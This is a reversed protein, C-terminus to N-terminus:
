TGLVVPTPQNNTNGNGVQGDKNRGWCWLRGDSAVACTHGDGASVTKWSPAASTVQVPTVAAQATGLQGDASGGWCWLSGDTQLGCTHTHGASIATWKAAPITIPSPTRVAATSGIGLQGNSNDGWCWLSSDTKLACTHYYGGSVQAWDTGPIQTPSLRMHTTGDGLQGLSNDGWCWLSHDAGVACSHLNGAAFTAGTTLWSTSNVLGPSARGASPAAPDGLQDSSNSGWSFLTGDPQLGLAHYSGASIAQWTGEIQLPIAVYSNAKAAGNGVQGSGNNGWCALAGSAQVACTLSSGAVVDSWSSGAVSAPQLTDETDGLGLQGLANAGWCWLSGDVAVACSHDVGASVRLFRLGAPLGGRSSARTEPSSPNTLGGDPSSTSGGPNNNTTPDTCCPALGVCLDMREGAKIEVSGTGSALTKMGDSDLADIQLALTGKRDPPLYLGFSTPFVLPTNLKSAPFQKYDPDGVNKLSVRLYYAAAVSNPADVSVVLMSDEQSSCGAGLCALVTMLALATRRM